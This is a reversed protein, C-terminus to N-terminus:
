NGATSVSSKNVDEDCKMLLVTTNILTYLPKWSQWEIRCVISVIRVVWVVIRGRFLLGMVLFVGRKM